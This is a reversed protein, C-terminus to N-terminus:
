KWFGWISKFSEMLFDVLKETTIFVMDVLREKTNEHLKWFLMKFIRYIVSSQKVLFLYCGTVNESLDGSIEVVNM